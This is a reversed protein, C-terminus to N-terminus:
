SESAKLAQTQADLILADIMDDIQGQLFLELNYLSVGIRHDTVRSQPFNYTRIKQSRDGTGVQAKRDAAEEAIQREVEAQYLKARLLRMAKEKNQLQSREDQCTVVIGTPHHTIRIASDTKNIHQGGAGSARYTDIQLDVDKVEVEVDDAEPLVVVTAASTHIRGGSETVPVRQVRHTGSEFKLRSYAGKGKVSFQVEKIAGIGKENISLQETKWGREEAYKLYMRYLDSAFLGAEDGGTGARVEVIVNKDDRPDKPLLLKKLEEELKQSQEVASDAERRYDRSTEPDSEEDAMEILDSIDTLATRYQQIKAVIPALEKHRRGLDQIKQQDMAVEPLSMEAEVAAFRKEIEELKELM